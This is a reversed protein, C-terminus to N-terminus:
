LEALANNKSIRICRTYSKQGNIDTSTVNRINIDTHEVDRVGSNM